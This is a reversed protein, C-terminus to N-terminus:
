LGHKIQTLFFKQPDIIKFAFHYNLHSPRPETKEFFYPILEIGNEEDWLSSDDFQNNCGTIRKYDNINIFITNM